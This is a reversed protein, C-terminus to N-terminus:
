KVRWRYPVDRGMRTVIGAERMKQMDSVVLKKKLGLAAAVQDATAGRKERIHALESDFRAQMIQRRLEHRQELTLKPPLEDIEDDAERPRVCKRREAPPDYPPAFGFLMALGRPLAVPTPTAFLDSLSM